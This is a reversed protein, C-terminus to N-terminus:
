FGARLSAPRATARVKHVEAEAPYTEAVLVKRPVLLSPLPGDFRWLSLPGKNRLAPALVDRWGSMAAEGVQNGGLTWFLCCAQALCSKAEATHL